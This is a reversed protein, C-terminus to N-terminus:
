NRQRQKNDDLEKRKIYSKELGLDMIFIFKLNGIVKKISTDITFIEVMGSLWSLQM